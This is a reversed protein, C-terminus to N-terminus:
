HHADPIIKFRRNTKYRYVSFDRQDLTFITRINEREALHVLVADALDPQLKRYRRIFAELRPMADAEVPLLVLLGSAFSEFLGEQARSDRRLLWQAETVVPWCTFLPPRLNALEKVCRQHHQDAKSLVAVIPGTDILIPGPIM